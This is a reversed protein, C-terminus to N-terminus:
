NTKKVSFVRCFLRSHIVLIVWAQYKRSLLFYNCVSANACQLMTYKDDDIEEVDSNPVSSGLPEAHRGRIECGGM